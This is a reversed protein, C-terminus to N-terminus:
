DLNMPSEARFVYTFCSAESEKLTMMGKLSKRVPIIGTLPNM